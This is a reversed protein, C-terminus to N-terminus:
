QQKVTGAYQQYFELKLKAINLSDEAAQILNDAAHNAKLKDLTAQLTVIQNPVGSKEDMADSVSKKVHASAQEFLKSMTTKKDAQGTAWVQLIAKGDTSENFLPVENIQNAPISNQENAVFPKVKDSIDVGSVVPVFVGTDSMTKQTEKSTLFQFLDLVVKLKDPDKELDKNLGWGARQQDGSVPFAESSLPTVDKTITPFPIVGFSFNKVNQEFYSYDWSGDMYFATKGLLFLQKAQDENIAAWGQQWYQAFDKILDLSTGEVPDDATYKGTAIAVRRMDVKLEPKRYKEDFMKAVHGPELPYATFFSMWLLFRNGDAAVPDIGSEKLKKCVALFETWTKPLNTVGAKAFLDKNYYFPIVPNTGPGGDVPIMAIAGYKNGSKASTFSKAGGKFTDIWAQGSNYASPQQMAGDLQLLYDQDMYKTGEVNGLMMADPAEHSVFQTDLLKAYGNNANPQFLHEIKVNPHLKMYEAFANNYAPGYQEQPGQWSMVKIKFNKNTPISGTESPAASASTAAATSSAASQSSDTKKTSCGSIAVAVTLISAAVMRTVPFKRSQSM